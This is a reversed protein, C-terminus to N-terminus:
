AGSRGSPRQFILASSRRPHGRRRRRRPQEAVLVRRPAILARLQPLDFHSLAGPVANGLQEPIWGREVAEAYDPPAADLRIAAIASEVSAALLAPLAAQRTSEIEIRALGRGKLFEAAQRLADARIGPLPTALQIALFAEKWDRGLWADSKTPGSEGYGPLDLALVSVGDRALAALRDLGSEKGGDSILIVSSGAGQARHYLAAVHFPRDWALKEVEFSEVRARGVVRAQPTPVAARMGAISRLREIWAARDSELFRAERIPRLRHEIERLLDAVSRGKLASLVQGTETCRLETEAVVAGAEVRAAIEAPRRDGLVREFFRGAADRLAPQYGHEGDAEVLDIAESAGLRGYIRKAERFTTWTGDIAFYDRSACALLAPKPAFAHLFDAHDLGSAISATLNQEADQPGITELLRRTSTLYCSPSAAAFRPDVAMLYATLTGGGSNGALGLRRADIDPRSELYDAARIGDWIRIAALQTGVLLATTGALTHETTGGVLPQGKDDLYQFREGQGIPDYILVALGRRAFEQGASQYTEGAKGHQHHGCPFLVAPFPPSGRRPLYLNATVHFDPRSEFIVKEVVHDERELRGAIRPRLPTKEPWPGLSRELAEVVARRREQVSAPDRLADVERARAELAASARELLREYLLSRKTRGATEAVLCTFVSQRHEHVVKGATDHHRFHIWPVQGDLGAEVSLFGGLLRQFRHYSPELEASTSAHVDSAPGCSFEQLGTAPVVSHYQWHRDGCVIFFNSGLRRRAWDRFAEGESYFAVNAHNDAKSDRDPGVIPTPSVLVRFSADSALLSAKLWEIQERGWITKEPGDPADNASRFDRGEVLWVELLKGWRYSRFCREGMPVQELFVAQGEAFSFPAIQLTPSMGPWCDNQFTDHDDKMWYCPVKAYFDRHRPLSHLRHWHFRALEKTSAIPDDKDYYVSDGTPILFDPDLRAMAPFIDFGDAHDLDRYQMGTIVTFLVRRAEGARPATSFSGRARRASSRGGAARTEVAFHYRTGPQLQELVVQASHDSTEDARAWATSAADRLDPETGYVVRLEGDAGPCAGRLDGAARGPELRRGPLSRDAQPPMEFGHARRDPELTLRARIRASDSTVEGIRVGTALHPPDEAAAMPRRAGAALAPLAALLLLFCRLYSM